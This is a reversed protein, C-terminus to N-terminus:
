TFMYCAKINIGLQTNHLGYSCLAANNAKTHEKLIHKVIKLAFCLFIPCYGDIISKICRDTNSIMFFTNATDVVQVQVM